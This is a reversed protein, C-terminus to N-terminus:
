EWDMEEVADTLDGHSAMVHGYTNSDGRYIEQGGNEKFIDEGDLGRIGNGQVETERATGGTSQREDEGNVLVVAGTELDIRIRSSGERDSRPAYRSGKLGPLFKLQEGPSGALDLM